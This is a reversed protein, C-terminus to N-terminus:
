GVKGELITVNCKWYLELGFGVNRRGCWLATRWPVEIREVPMRVKCMPHMRPGYGHESSCTRPNVFLVKSDIYVHLSLRLWMTRWGGFTNGKSARARSIQLQLAPSVLEHSERCVDKKTRRLESDRLCSFESHLMLIATM